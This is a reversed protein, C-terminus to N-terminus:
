TGKRMPSVNEPVVLEVQYGLVAGIMAYAIGTNGSTPDMIIKNKTLEGSKIAETIMRYAPRDKISGGPNFFELKAYIEVNKFEKDFSHIRILPTNGIKELISDIKM